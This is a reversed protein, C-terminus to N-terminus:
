RFTLSASGLLNRNKTDVDGHRLQRSSPSGFFRYSAYVGGGREKADCNRITDDRLLTM